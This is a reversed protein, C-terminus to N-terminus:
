GEEIKLVAWWGVAVLVAIGVFLTTIAGLSALFAEGYTLRGNARIEPDTAMLAAMGFLFVLGLASLVSVGVARNRSM